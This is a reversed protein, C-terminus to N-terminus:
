SKILRYVNKQLTSNVITQLLYPSNVNSASSHKDTNLISACKPILAM